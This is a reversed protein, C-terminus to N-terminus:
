LLFFFLERRKCPAKETWKQITEVFYGKLTATSLQEILWDPLSDIPTQAPRHTTLSYHSYSFPQLNTIVLKRNAAQFIPQVHQLSVSANNKTFIAKLTAKRGFRDEPDWYHLSIAIAPNFNTGIAANLSDRVAQTKNEKKLDAIKLDAQCVYDIATIRKNDHDFYQKLPFRIRNLLLM